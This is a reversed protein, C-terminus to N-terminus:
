KVYELTFGYDPTPPPLQQLWEGVRQYTPQDTQLFVTPIDGPHRLEPEVTSAPRGYTLLLSDQPMDRNILRADGKKYEHLIMYNTYVTADSWPRETVFAIGEAHRGGHCASTACGSEIIPWIRTSFEKMIAPDTLIEVDKALSPDYDQYKVRRLIEQARKVPPLRFFKPRDRRTLNNRSAVETWFRELVDNKFKVRVKEPEELNLMDRRIVQIQEDTLLKVGAATTKGEQEDDPTADPDGTSSAALKTNALELLLKAQQNKPDLGIVHNCQRRLLDYAQKERCWMALRLHGEVDDVKISDFQRRYASEIAKDAARAFDAAIALVALILLMAGTRLVSGNRSPNEAQLM